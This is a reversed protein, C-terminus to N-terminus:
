HRTFLPDTDQFKTIHTTASAPHLIAHMGVLANAISSVTVLDGHVADDHGKTNRSFIRARHGSARLLRVVHRGLVCTGGTVLVNMHSRDDHAFYAPHASRTAQDGQGTAPGSREPGREGNRYRHGSRRSGFVFRYPMLLFVNGDNASAPTLGRVSAARDACPMVSGTCTWASAMGARSAPRSTTM